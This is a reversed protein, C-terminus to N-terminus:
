SVLLMRDWAPDSSGDAALLVLGIGAAGTLLDPDDPTYPMELLRNTWDDAATHVGLRRFLHALGAAGHCLSADVVGTEEAPRAAAVRAIDNAEDVWASEGAHRGAVALAAAIGPDGYCWATRAPVPESGDDVVRGPYCSRPDDLRRALLWRVADDLLPRAVPEAVGAGCALGLLAVVGPLGHAMGLDCFRDPLESRVTEPWRDRNSIWTTGGPSHHATEALRDVVATLLQAGNDHPLRECAYVGAGVLGSVLDFDDTWPTRSVWRLLAEDIRGCRDRDPGIGRHRLHEVAWAVGVFGSYLSPYLRTTRLAAVARELCSTARAEHGAYADFVALGALGGMLSPDNVSPEVEALAAAIEDVAAGARPENSPRASVEADSRRRATM